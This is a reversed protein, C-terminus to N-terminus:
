GAEKRPLPRVPEQGRAAANPVARPLTVTVAAGGLDSSGMRLCGGNRRVMAAVIDLGLSTVPPSTDDLGRGSDAVVLTARDEHWRVTLVVHGGPGAARCANDILNTLIRVVVVPHAAVAVIDAAVDIV